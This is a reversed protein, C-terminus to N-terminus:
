TGTSRVLCFIERGGRESLVACFGSGVDFANVGAVRTVSGDLHCTIRWVLDSILREREAQSLARFGAASGEDVFTNERFFRTAKLEAGGDLISRVHRLDEENLVQALPIM